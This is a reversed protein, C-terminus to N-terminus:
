WTWCPTTLLLRLRQENLIEQNDDIEIDDMADVQDQLVQIVSENLLAALVADGFIDVTLLAEQFVENSEPTLNVAIYDSLLLETVEDTLDIFIQESESM